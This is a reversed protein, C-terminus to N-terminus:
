PSDISTESQVVPRAHRVGEHRVVKLKPQFHSREEVYKIELQTQPSKYKDVLMAAANELNILHSKQEALVQPVILPKDHQRIIVTEANGRKICLRALMAELKKPRAVRTPGQHELAPIADADGRLLRGAIARKSLKKLFVKGAVISTLGGADHTISSKRSRAPVISTRRSINTFEGVKKRKDQIVRRTNRPSKHAAASGRTRTTQKIVSSRASPHASPHASTEPTGTASSSPTRRNPAKRPAHHLMEEMRKHQAVISDENGKVLVTVAEGVSLPLRMRSPIYDVLKYNNRENLLKFLIEFWLLDKDTINFFYDFGFRGQVYPKPDEFPSLSFEVPIPHLAARNGPEILGMEEYSAIDDFPVCRSDYLVMAVGTGYGELQEGHLTHQMVDEVSDYMVAGYTYSKSEDDPDHTGLVVFYRTESEQEGVHCVGLVDKAQRLPLTRVRQFHLVHQYFQRATEWASVECLSPVDHYPSQTHSKCRAYYSFVKAMSDLGSHSLKEYKVAINIQALSVHIRDAVEKDAFGIKRPRAPRERAGILSSSMASVLLESMKTVKDDISASSDWYDVAHLYHTSLNFVCMVEPRMATSSGEFPKVRSQDAGSLQQVDILNRMTPWDWGAAESKNNEAPVWMRMTYPTVYWRDQCEEVGWAVKRLNILCAPEHSGWNATWGPQRWPTVCGDYDGSPVTETRVMRVTRGGGAVSAQPSLIRLETTPARKHASLLKRATTPPGPLAASSASQRATQPRASRETRAPRYPRSTSPRHPASTSPRATSPSLPPPQPTNYRASLSLRPVEVVGETPAEM